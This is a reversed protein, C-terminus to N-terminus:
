TQYNGNERERRQLESEISTGYGELVDSAISMSRELFTVRSGMDLIFDVLGDTSMGEFAKREDFLEGQDKIETM